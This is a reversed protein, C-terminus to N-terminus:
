EKDVFEIRLKKNLSKALKYLFRVRMPRRSTNMMSIYAPHHGTLTAIEYQTLGYKQKIYDFLEKPNFDDEGEYLTDELEPTNLLQEIRDAAYKKLPDDAFRLIDILTKDDM